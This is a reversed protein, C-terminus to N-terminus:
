EAGVWLRASIAELLEVQRGLEGRLQFGLRLDAFVDPSDANEGERTMLIVYGGRAGLQGLRALRGPLSRKSGSGLARPSIRRTRRRRSALRRLCPQPAHHLLGVQTGRRARPSRHGRDARRRARPPHPLLHEQGLHLVLHLQPRHRGQVRTLAGARLPPRLSRCPESADRSDVSFGM